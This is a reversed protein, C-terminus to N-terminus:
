ESQPVDALGGLLAAFTCLPCPGKAVWGAHPEQSKDRSSSPKQLQVVARAVSLLTRAKCSLCLPTDAWPPGGQQRRACVGTPAATNGGALPCTWTEPLAAPAATGPERM